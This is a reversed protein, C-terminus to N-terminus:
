NKISAWDVNRMLNLKGNPRADRLDKLDKLITTQADTAAKAWKAQEAEAGPRDAQLASLREAVERNAQLRAARLYFDFAAKSGQLAEEIEKVDADLIDAGAGASLRRAFQSLKLQRAQLGKLGFVEHDLLDRRFGGTVGPGPDFARYVAALQTVLGPLEGSGAGRNLDQRAKVAAVLTNAATWEGFSLEDGFRVGDAATPVWTAELTSLLAIQKPLSELLAAVRDQVTLKAIEFVKEFRIDLNDFAISVVRVKPAQSGYPGFWFFSTRDLKEAKAFLNQDAILLEIDKKSFFLLKHDAITNAPVKLLDPAAFNVVNKKYGPWRDPAWKKGEPIAVGTLLGIGKAVDLSFSFTATAASALAGVFELTRFIVARPQNVEEDDLIAYTQQLSSPVVSVPVTFSVSTEGTESDPVPEVIARGSATIMGTSILRADGERNAISLRVVFFSQSILPGFLKEVETEPLPFARIDQLPVQGKLVNARYENVEYMTFTRTAFSVVRKKEDAEFARRGSVIIQVTLRDGSKLRDLLPEKLVVDGGDANGSEVRDDLPKRVYFDENWAKESLPVTGTILVDVNVCRPFLDRGDFPIRVARKRDGRPPAGDQPKGEFTLVAQLGINHIRPRKNKCFATRDREAADRSAAVRGLLTEDLVAVFQRRAALATISAKGEGFTVLDDAMRLVNARNFGTKFVAQAWNATNLKELVGNLDGDSLFGIAEHFAAASEALQQRYVSASQNPPAAPAAAPPPGPARAPISQCASGVLLLGSCLAGAIAHSLISLNSPM